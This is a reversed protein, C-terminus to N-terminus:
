FSPIEPRYNKAAFVRTGTHDPMRIDSVFWTTPPSGTRNTSNGPPIAEGGDQCVTVKAVRPQPARERHDPPNGAPRGRDPSAARCCRPDLTRNEMAKEVGPPDPARQGCGADEHPDSRCRASAPLTFVRRLTRPSWGSCSSSGTARHGGVARCAVRRRRRSVSINTTTREVM